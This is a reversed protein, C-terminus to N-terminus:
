YQLKNTVDAYCGTNMIQQGTVMTISIEKVCCSCENSCM